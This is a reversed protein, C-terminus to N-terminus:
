LLKKVLKMLLKGINTKVNETYLPISWIVSRNINRQPNQTNSNSSSMSYFPGSDALATEYGSKFKRFEEKNCYIDLIKKNNTIPM